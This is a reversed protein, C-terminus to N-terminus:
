LGLSLQGGTAPGGESAEGPGPEAADATTLMALLDDESIIPVKEKLAKERKAPGMKDGAVLYSLKKSIGSVISGGHQEILAALDERPQSFVGSLVFTRGALAESTREVQGAEEPLGFQLGAARLRRILVGNAPDQFWATIADAMIDGVEAVGSLADPSPPNDALHQTTAEDFGFDAALARRQAKREDTLLSEAAEALVAERKKGGKAAPRVENALAAAFLADLTRFHYALKKAVTEGVHRLGLGFLVRDFPVQKSAEIAEVIATATKERFGIKRPKGTEPDDIVKELGFLQDYTLDYLDAPDRVLGKEILLALKGEGLSDLDMARRSVFHELRTQVQPPCTAANPCRWHAEGEARVLPTGCAPCETPYVIPTAGEPRLEPVVGTIKPIIEGGKEVLVTDGLRLDLAAIQNANHVSARKVVTGALPVPDLNAVPTVAGTRGVQYAISRLVTRAAMAPYKYAIAWRPSKATFGLERQQHFANVKIVVGDTALPLTARRSEWEHIYALVDELTGCIRWTDSVPLGWSALAELTQAHTEFPNQEALFHYTFCSLRRKAVVASDQLKLTGATANRPNAMLAEDAEARQANIEDFVKFPMFVEGRVEFQAPFDAGARLRLPLTRITRANATIEDGKVGDGRTVGQVLHGNEYTLSIAVGDFKQECVYEVAEVGLGKRVREDFERLEEESYTNALSLMPYRHQVSPFEKTVTGGVRQTPSSPSALAPFQRELDQLERLLADFTQDSVESIGQQYYLDNYRDILRTLEEVRPRATDITM